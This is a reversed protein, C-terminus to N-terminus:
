SSHMLLYHGCSCFWTHYEMTWLFCLIDLCLTYHNFSGLPFYCTAIESHSAYLVSVFASLSHSVDHFFFVREFATVFLDAGHCEKPVLLCSSEFSKTEWCGSPGNLFKYGLECVNCFCPVVNHHGWSRLLFLFICEVNKTKVCSFITVTSQWLRSEMNQRMFLIGFTFQVLRKVLSLKKTLWVPPTMSWSYCGGRSSVM